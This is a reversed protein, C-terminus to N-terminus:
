WEKCARCLHTGDVPWLRSVSGGCEECEAGGPVVRLTAAAPEVDVPLSPEPDDVGTEVAATSQTSENGATSDDSESDGDTDLFDDLSRDEMTM